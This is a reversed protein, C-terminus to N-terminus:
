RETMIKTIRLFYDARDEPNIKEMQMFLGAWTALSVCLSALHERDKSNLDAFVTTVLDLNGQMDDRYLCIASITRLAEETYRHVFESYDTM